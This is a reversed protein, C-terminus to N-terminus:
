LTLYKVNENKYIMLNSEQHNQQPHVEVLDQLVEVELVIQHHQDVQYM